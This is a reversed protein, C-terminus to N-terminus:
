NRARILQPYDVGEIPQLLMLKGDDMHQIFAVVGAGIGAGVGATLPSAAPTTTQVVRVVTETTDVTTALTKYYYLRYKLAAPPRTVYIGGPYTEDVFRFSKGPGRYFVGLSDELEAKYEGGALAIQGEYLTIPSVDLTATQKAKTLKTADLSDPGTACASLALAVLLTTIIKM